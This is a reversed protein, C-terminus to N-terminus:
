GGITVAAHETRGATVTAAYGFAAARFAGARSEAAATRSTPWAARWRCLLGLGLELAVGALVGVELAVGVGLLVGVGLPVGVGLLVGLELPVGVGLLDGVGLLLGDGLLLGLGEGDGEGLGFAAWSQTETWGKEFALTLCPFVAVYAIQTQLV